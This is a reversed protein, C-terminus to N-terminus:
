WIIRNKGKRKAIYAKEDAKKILDKIPIKKDDVIGVSFTIEKETLKEKIREIIRKAKYKDVNEFIIVFEDGGYRYAKDTERISSKIIESVEKLIEDGKLHGYTDNIKKFDDLDLFALSIIKKNIEYYTLDANLKSSNYLKTMPDLESLNKMELYHGKHSLIMSIIRGLVSLILMEEKTPRLRNNPSDCSIYGFINDEKDRITIILLDKPDWIYDKDSFTEVNVNNEMIFYNDSNIENAINPIFYVEGFRYENKKFISNIIESAKVKKKKLSAFEEESFGAYAVREILDKEYDIKSILVYNFGFKEHLFKSVDFFLKEDSFHLTKSYLLNSFEFMIENFKNLRNKKISEEEKEYIYKTIFYYIILLLLNQFLFYYKVINNESILYLYISPLSSLFFLLEVVFIEIKFKFIDTILSNIIKAFVAFLLLKIYINSNLNHVLLYSGYYMSFYVFFKKIRKEININDIRFLTIISSLFIYEPGFLYSVIFGPVNSVLRNRNKWKVNINDSIFTLLIVLLVKDIQFNFSIPFLLFLITSLLISITMQYDFVKKM